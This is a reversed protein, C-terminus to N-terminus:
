ESDLTKEILDLLEKADTLSDRLMSLYTRRYGFSRHFANHIEPKGRIRDLDFETGQSYGVKYEVLPYVYQIAINQLSVGFKSAIESNRQYSEVYQNYKQSILPDIRELRGLALQADNRHINKYLPTLVELLTLNSKISNIEEETAPLQSDLFKLSKEIGSNIESYYEYQNHIVLTDTFLENQLNKLFSFDEQRLKRAENWNNIQLAILIGVVVLAIEGIAYLFYRSLSSYTNKMNSKEIFSRRIKRFFQFM